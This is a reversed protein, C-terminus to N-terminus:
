KFIYSNRSEFTKKVSSLYSFTYIPAYEEVHVAHIQFFKGYKSLSYIVTIYYPTGIDFTSFNRLCHRSLNELSLATKFKSSVM